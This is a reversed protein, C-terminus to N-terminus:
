VHEDDLGIDLSALLKELEPREIKGSKDADVEKFLQTAKEEEKEFGQL